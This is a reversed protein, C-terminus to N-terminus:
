AELKEVPVSGILNGDKDMVVKKPKAIERAVNTLGIGVTRSTEEVQRALTHSAKISREVSEVLPKLGPLDHTV